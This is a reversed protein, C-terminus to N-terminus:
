FESFKIHLTYNQSIQRENERAGFIKLGQFIYFFFAIYKFNNQYLTKTWQIKLNSLKRTSETM